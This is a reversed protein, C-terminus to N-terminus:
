EGMRVMLVIKVNYIGGCSCQLATFVHRGTVLRDLDMRDFTTTNIKSIQTILGDRGNKNRTANFRMRDVHTLVDSFFFSLFFSLYYFFFFYTTTTSFSFFIYSILFFFFSTTEVSNLSICLFIFM